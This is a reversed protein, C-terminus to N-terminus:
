LLAIFEEVKSILTSWDVQSVGSTAISVALKMSFDNFFKRVGNVAKQLRNKKPSQSKIQEEISQLDDRVDEINEEPIDVILNLSHLVKELLKGIQEIQASYIKTESYIVGSGQQNFTGCVMNQPSNSANQQIQVKANDGFHMGCAADRLANILENHRRLEETEKERRANEDAISQQLQRQKANDIVSQLPDHFKASTSGSGIYTSQKEVEIQYHDPIGHMGKYFGRDVVLFQEKSGSPLVREVVDGEEINITADDIFIQKGDILAEINEIVSSDRKIIKVKETPFNSLFMRM